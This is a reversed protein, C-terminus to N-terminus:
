LVEAMMQDVIPEWQMMSKVPNYYSMKAKLFFFSFFM